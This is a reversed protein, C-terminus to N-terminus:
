LIKFFNFNSDSWTSSISVSFNQSLVKLINYKTNRQINVDLCLKLRTKSRKNPENNVTKIAVVAVLDAVLFSSVLAAGCLHHQSRGPASFCSWSLHGTYLHLSYQPHSNVVHSECDRCCGHKFLHSRCLLPWWSVSPCVTSARYNWWMKISEDTKESM